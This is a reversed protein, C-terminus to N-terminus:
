EFFDVFFFPGKGADDAMHNTLPYFLKHYKWEYLNETTRLIVQVSKNLWQQIHELSDKLVVQPIELIISGSFFTKNHLEISNRSLYQMKKRLFELSLRVCEIIAEITKMNFHFILNWYCCPGCELCRNGKNGKARVSDPILCPYMDKECLEELQKPKLQKKIMEILSFTHFEALECYRSVFCKNFFYEFKLNRNRLRIKFNQM